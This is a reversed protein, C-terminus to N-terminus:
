APRQPWPHGCSESAAPTVAHVLFIGSRSRRAKPGRGRRGGRRVASRPSYNAFSRPPSQLEDPIRVTIRGSRIVTRLNSNLVPSTQIETILTVTEPRSVRARSERGPCVFCLIVGWPLENHGVARLPVALSGRCTSADHHLVVIALQLPVSRVLCDSIGARERLTSAGIPAAAATSFM